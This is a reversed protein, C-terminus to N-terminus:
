LDDDDDVESAGSEDGEVEEFTEDLDDESVNTQNGFTKDKKKVQIAVLGANVRKGHTNDQYWLRILMDGWYGGKVEAAIRGQPIPKTDPGRVSPQNDERAAILWHGVAEAQGSKDGNRMCLADTKFTELSQKNEKLLESIRKKVYQRMEEHTRKPALASCSYKKKDEPKKGWPADVHPYSFRINRLLITGDSYARYNEGEAIITRAM